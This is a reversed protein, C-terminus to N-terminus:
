GSFAETRLVFEQNLVDKGFIIQSSFALNPVARATRWTAGVWRGGEMTGLQNTSPNSSGHIVIIVTHEVCLIHVKGSDGHNKKHIFGDM